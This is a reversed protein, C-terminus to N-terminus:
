TELEAQLEAFGAARHVIPPAVAADVRGRLARLLAADAGAVHAVLLTARPVAGLVADVAALVSAADGGSSPLLLGRAGAAVASAAQVADRVTALVAMRTSRADAAIKTWEEAPLAGDICVGDAGHWRAVLCAQGERLPPLCLAPVSKTSRAARQMVESATAFAFAAVGIDDLRAAEDEPREDDLLPLLALTKKRTNLAQLLDRTAPTIRGVDM